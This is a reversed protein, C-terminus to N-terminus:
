DPGVITDIRDAAESDLQEVDISYLLIGTNTFKQTVVVCRDLELMKTIREYIRSQQTDATKGGDGLVVVSMKIDQRNILTKANGLSTQDPSLSVIVRFALSDNGLRGGHWVTVFFKGCFTSFIYDSSFPIGIGSFKSTRIRLSSSVEDATTTGMLNKRCEQATAKDDVETLFLNWAGKLIALVMLIQGGVMRDQIILTVLRHENGFSPHFGLGESDIRVGVAAKVIPPFYFRGAEKKMAWAGPLTTMSIENQSIFSDHPSADVIEISHHRKALSLIVSHEPDGQRSRSHLPSAKEASSNWVLPWTEEYLSIWIPETDFVLGSVGQYGFMRNKFSTRTFQRMVTGPNRHLYVVPWKTGGDSQSSSHNDTTCALFGYYYNPYEPIPALPLQIHLGANTTMYDPKYRSIGFTEIFHEPSVPYLRLSAAFQSPSDALIGTAVRNEEWAFITHDSSIRIIEQQLRIFARRGEGYLPPMNIGFLGLLSYARDEERTTRRDAAWSMKEAISIEHAYIGHKLIREDVGTIDAITTALNLDIKHGIKHWSANFFVVEAPAILEQLTWGRKFWVSRRFSSGEISPDELGTVDALYVYCRQSLQYWSFMSNIAESLEASDRKDICCTDIWVHKYGDDLAQACCGQLKPYGPKTTINSITTINEIDQCDKFSVEAAPNDLWRHSLIAYPPVGGFYQKLCIRLVHGPDDRSCYLLFMDSALKYHIGILNSYRLISNLNIADLEIYLHGRIQYFIIVLATDEACSRINVKNKIPSAIPQLELKSSKYQRGRTEM